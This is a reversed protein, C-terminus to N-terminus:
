IGMRKHPKAGAGPRDSYRGASDYRGGTYRDYLPNKFRDKTTGHSKNEKPFDRLKPTKLIHTTPHTGKINKTYYRGKSPHMQMETFQQPYVQAHQWSSGNKTTVTLRLTTSDYSVSELWSSDTCPLHKTTKPDNKIWEIQPPKIAGDWQAPTQPDPQNPNTPIGM